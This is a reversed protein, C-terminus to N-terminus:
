GEKIHLIEMFEADSVEKGEEYAINFYFQLVGDTIFSEVENINLYRDAVVLKAAFVSELNEQIDLIEDAYEYRSSPFYYIRVTIQRRIQEDGSPSKIVNDLHVFFSPRVFGEKVDRETVEIGLNDLRSIIAAKIDKLTLM